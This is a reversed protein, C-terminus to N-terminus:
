AMGKNKRFWNTEPILKAMLAIIARRDEMAIVESANSGITGALGVPALAPDVASDDQDGDVRTHELIKVIKQADYVGTRGTAAYLGLGMGGDPKLVAELARLGDLPSPLHHLVGICNIYDFHVEAPKL